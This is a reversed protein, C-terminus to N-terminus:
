LTGGHAPEMGLRQRMARDATAGVRGPVYLLTHAVVQASELSDLPLAQVQSEKGATPPDYLIVEHGAPYYDLLYDRLVRLGPVVELNGVQHVHWLLLVSGADFRCRHLLFHTADFSQGGARGPDVLLDAFLCDEASVAPVMWARYGAQRAQQLTRRTVPHLAPHGPLVLSVSLDARLAAIVSTSLADERQVDQAQPCLQYLWGQAEEDALLHFVRGVNVLWARAEITLHEAPREGVGIIVLYPESM